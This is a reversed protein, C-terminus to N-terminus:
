ATLAAAQRHLQAAEPSVAILSLAWNRDAEPWRRADGGYADLLAGLRALDTGETM